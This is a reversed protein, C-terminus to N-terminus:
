TKLSWWFKQVSQLFGVIVHGYTRVYTHLTHMYSTHKRILIYTHICADTYLTQVYMHM